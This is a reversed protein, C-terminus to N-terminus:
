PLASTRLGVWVRVRYPALHLGSGVDPGGLPFKFSFVGVARARWAWRRRTVRHHRKEDRRGTAKVFLPGGELLTSPVLGLPSDGEAGGPFTGGERSGKETPEGLAFRATFRELSMVM